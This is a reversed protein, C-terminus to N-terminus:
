KKQTAWEYYKQFTTGLFEVFPTGEKLWRGGLPPVRSQV